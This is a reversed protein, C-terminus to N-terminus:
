KEQRWQQGDRELWVTYSHYLSYINNLRVIPRSATIQVEQEGLSDLTRGLTPLLNDIEKQLSDQDSSAAVYHLFVWRHRGRSQRTFQIVELQKGDAGTIYQRPGSSCYSLLLALSGVM